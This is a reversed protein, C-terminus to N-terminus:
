DVAPLWILGRRGDDPEAPFRWRQPRYERYWRPVSVPAAEGAAPCPGLPEFGGDGALLRLHHRAAWGWPSRAAQDDRRLSGEADRLAELRAAPPARRAREIALCARLFRSEGGRQSREFWRAAADLEGRYLAVRALSLAEFEGVGAAGGFFPTEARLRELARALQGAFELPPPQDVAGLDVVKLLLVQLMGCLRHPDRHQVGPAFTADAWGQFVPLPFGDAHAFILLEGVLTLPWSRWGEGLEALARSVRRRGDLVLEVREGRVNMGLLLDPLLASVAAAQPHRAGDLRDPLQPVRLSRLKEQDRYGYLWVDFAELLQRDVLRPEARCHALAKSASFVEDVLAGRDDGLDSLGRQCCAELARQARRLRALAQWTRRREGDLEVWAPPADHTAALLRQGVAVELEPLAAARQWALELDDAALASDVAAVSPGARPVGARGSPAPPEAAPATPRGQTVGWLLAACTVGALALAVGAPNRRSRPVERLAHRLARVSPYRRAPDKALARLCVADLWPEVAALRSPPVVPAKLVAALTAIVSGRSAIPERGTLCSYLVGGLGYVDARADARKAERIQEPAMYAPTGLVAGTQTLRSSHGTLRVGLGFDVLRPEGDDGFLVNEPKLDRHLVGEAHAVELAEALKAVLELAQAQPLPGERLRDALTGGPYYDLVFYPTSGALEASHVRALYPHRLRALTEAERTFRQRAEGDELEILRKAALRAGSDPDRVLYVEGCAGAGLKREVVYRGLRQPTRASRERAWRREAARLQGGSVARDALLALAFGEATHHSRLCGELVDRPAGEAVLAELLRRAAPDGPTV